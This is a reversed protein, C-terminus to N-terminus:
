VEVGGTGNVILLLILMYVTFLSLLVVGNLRTLNHRYRLMSLMAVVIVLVAPFMFFIVNKEATLPNALSSIGAVWCINLIDAGIINGIGIGGQGRRAAIVCTAVEPTSTGMATITLGIIVPSLGLGSAIGEAGKVLLESGAVVGLSGGVFLTLVRSLPMGVLGEEIAGLETTGEEAEGRTRRRKVQIYSMVAYAVYILVLVGGELRDLTGDLTALFALVIVTLLMLASTRFIRPNVVLPTSAVVAGLGLAVSADMVVSGVANGLALEPMGQIAALLSTMLEPSTTAISVLTLGVLMPPVHLREALGVAGQVFWDACKWLM